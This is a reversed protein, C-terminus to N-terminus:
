LEVEKYTPGIEWKDTSGMHKIDQIARKAKAISKFIKHRGEAIVEKRNGAIYGLGDEDEKLLMFTGMRDTTYVSCNIM